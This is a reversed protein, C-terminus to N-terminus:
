IVTKKWNDEITASCRKVTTSNHSIASRSSLFIRSWPTQVKVFILEDCTFQRRRKNMWENKKGKSVNYSFMCMYKQFSSIKRIQFANVINKELCYFYYYQKTSRPLEAHEKYVHDKVKNFGDNVIYIYYKDCQVFPKDSRQTSHRM